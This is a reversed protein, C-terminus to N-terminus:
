GFVLTINNAHFCFRILRDDKSDVRFLGRAEKLLQCQFHPRCFPKLKRNRSWLLNRIIEGTPPLLLSSWATSINNCLGHVLLRRKWYPLIDLEELDAHVTALLAEARQCREQLSWDHRLRLSDSSKQKVRQGCVNSKM